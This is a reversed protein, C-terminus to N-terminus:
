VGLGNPPIARLEDIMGRLQRFISAKSSDALSPWRKAITEGRIREMLIYTKGHLTFAYYVKPVPITTYRAIFRLTNAEALTVSEGFKICFSVCFIAGSPQSALLKKLYRQTAVKTVVLVSLRLIRAKLRSEPRRTETKAM